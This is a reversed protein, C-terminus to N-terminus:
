CFGTVRLKSTEKSRRRFLRNLLCDFCQHNPVGNRENHRWRLASDFLWCSALASLLWSPCFPSSWSFRSCGDTRFHLFFVFLTSNIKCLQCIPSFRSYLIIMDDRCLAGICVCNAGLWCLINLYSSEFHLASRTKLPSRAIHRWEKSFHSWPSCHWIWWANLINSKTYSIMFWRRRHGRKSVHNLKLGLM